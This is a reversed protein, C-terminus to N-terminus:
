KLYDAWNFYLFHGVYVGRSKETCMSGSKEQFGYLKRAM